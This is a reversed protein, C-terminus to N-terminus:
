KGDNEENLLVEWIEPTKVDTLVAQTIQVQLGNRLGQFFECEDCLVIAVNAPFIKEIADVAGVHLTETLKHTLEIVSIVCPKLADNFRLIHYVDKM